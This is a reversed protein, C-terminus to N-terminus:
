KVGHRTSFQKEMETCHAENLRVLQKRLGDNAFTTFMGDLLKPHREQFDAPIRGYTKTFTAKDDEHYTPLYNGFGDRTNGPADKKKPFISVSTTYTDKAGQERIVTVEATGGHPLNVNYTRANDPSYGKPVTYKENERRMLEVKVLPDYTEKIHDIQATFEERDGSDLATELRAYDAEREKEKKLATHDFERRRHADNLRAAVKERLVTEREVRAMADDVERPDTSPPLAELDRRAQDEKESQGLLTQELKEIGAPSATYQHQAERYAGAAKSLQWSARHAKHMLDRSPQDGADQIENIEDLLASFKKDAKRYKELTAAMQDAAHKSCRPGPKRQCM